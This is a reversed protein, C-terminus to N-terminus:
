LVCMVDLYSGFNQFTFDQPINFCLIQSTQPDRPPSYSSPPDEPNNRRTTQYFKVSTESTSAAEMVQSIVRVAVKLM